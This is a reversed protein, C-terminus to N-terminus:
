GRTLRAEGALDNIWNQVDVAYRGVEEQLRAECRERIAAIREPTPTLQHRLLEAIGCCQGAHLLSRRAQEFDAAGKRRKAAPRRGARRQLKRASAQMLRAHRLATAEDWGAVTRADTRDADTVEPESVGAPLEIRPMAVTSALDRRYGTPLARDILSPTPHRRDV